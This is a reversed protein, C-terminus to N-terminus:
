KIAKRRGVLLSQRCATAQPQVSSPDPPTAADPRSKSMALAVVFAGGGLMLAVFLSTWEDKNHPSVACRPGHLLVVWLLFMFGLLTAGLRANIKVGASASAPVFTVDIPRPSPPLPPIPPQRLRRHLRIRPRLRHRHLPQRPGTCLRNPLRSAPSKLAWVSNRCASHMSNAPLSSAAPQSSNEWPQSQIRTGSAMPSARTIAAARSHLNSKPSASQLPLKKLPSAARTSKRQSRKRHPRLARLPLQALHASKRPRNNSRARTRM